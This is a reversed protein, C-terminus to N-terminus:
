NREKEMHKAIMNKIQLEAKPCDAHGEPYYKIRDRILAIKEQLATEANLKLKQKLKKIEM